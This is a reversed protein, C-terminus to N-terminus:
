ANCCDGCCYSAGKGDEREAILLFLFIRQAEEAPHPIKKRATRLPEAQSRATHQLFIINSFLSYIILM